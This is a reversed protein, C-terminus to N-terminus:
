TSFVFNGNMWTINQGVHIVHDETFNNRDGIFIESTPITVVVTKNVEKTNNGKHYKGNVRIAYEGAREMINNWLYPTYNAKKTGNIHVEKEYTGEPFSADIWIKSHVIAGDQISTIHISDEEITNNEVISHPMSIGLFTGGLFAMILLPAFIIQKKM